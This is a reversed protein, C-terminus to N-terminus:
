DDWRENRYKENPNYEEYDSFLTEKKVRHSGIVENTLRIHEYQWGPTYKLTYGSKNIDRLQELIAM